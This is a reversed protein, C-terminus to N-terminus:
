EKEGRPAAAAIMSQYREAAVAFSVKNMSKPHQGFLAGLMAETPEVPVMVVGQPPSPHAYLTVRDCRKVGAAEDIPDGGMIWVGRPTCARGCVAYDGCCVVGQPPSPHAYLPRPEKPYPVGHLRVIQQPYHEPNDWAVAEQAVTPPSRATSWEHHWMFACYNAADRPDGKQLHEYLKARCEDQWDDNAWLNTYGYKQQAKLLKEKLAAAFRDVLSATDPHLAGADTPLSRRSARYDQIVELMITTMQITTTRGKVSPMGFQEFFAIVDDARRDLEDGAGDVPQSRRRLLAIADAILEDRLEDATSDPYAPYIRDLAVQRAVLGDVEEDHTPITM